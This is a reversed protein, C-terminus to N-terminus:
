KGALPLPPFEAFTDRVRRAFLIYLLFYLDVVGMALQVLVEDDVQPHRIPAALALALDLGASLALILRGRAWIWRVFGPAKPARFFLAAVVVAAIASPALTDASWLKRVVALASSDVGAFAGIAAAVPLTIARSLYLVAAWWMVPPKLCLHHDYSSEPYPHPSHIHRM